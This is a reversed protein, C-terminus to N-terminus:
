FKQTVYNRLRVPWHKDMCPKEILLYFITSVLLILPLCVVAQVLLDSKYGWGSRMLVSYKVVLHLFAYHLLYISYCMGGIIYVWPRTFFYNFYRGKFVSIILGLIGLNFFFNNWIHHQPKYFYFQIFVAVVGLLDWIVSKKSFFEPKLLYWGAFFIGVMFNSLYALVSSSLHQIGNRVFYNRLFVSILFLVAGTALPWFLEKKFFLLAFLLPVLAYFQAETELSWTVPNIPNPYGYVLVHLYTLGIGFHTLTDKFTEGLLLIHVGSFVLLSIIFPPELRTLRRYYYDALQIKPGKQLRNRLFPMALVMGSIAFFVKVGLDLRVIWWAPSFLSKSGGLEIMGTDTYGAAKSFATNLHYIVVTMIAYFRLGDVEPIFAVSNTSRTLLQQLRM